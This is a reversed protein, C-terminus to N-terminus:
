WNTIYENLAQLINDNIYDPGGTMTFFASLYEPATKRMEDKNNNVHLASLKAAKEVCAMTYKDLSNFTQM